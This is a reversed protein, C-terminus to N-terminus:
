ITITVPVGKLQLPKLGDHFSAGVRAHLLCDADDEVVVATERELIGGKFLCEESFVSRSLESSTRKQSLSSEGHLTCACVDTREIDFILKDIIVDWPVGSQVLWKRLWM